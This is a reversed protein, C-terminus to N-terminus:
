NGKTKNFKKVDDLITHALNIAAQENLILHAQEKHYGTTLVEWIIKFRNYTSSWFNSTSEVYFSLTIDNFETDTDLEIWAHVQHEPSSCSCNIIYNTANDFDIGRSIGEAPKQVEM